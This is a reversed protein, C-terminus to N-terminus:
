ELKKNKRDQLHMQDFDAVSFNRDVKAPMIDPSNVSMAGVMQMFWIDTESRKNKTALYTARNVCYAVFDAIQLLPEDASSAYKGSYQGIWNGFVANGFKSGPTNAGQDVRVTLPEALSEKYADKFKACLMLLSVDARQSLDLGDVVGSMSTVGHDAFTREDITSVVVPWRYMSYIRAFFAFVALNGTPPLGDWCGERNYIEAFHFETAGVAGMERVLELCSRIEARVRDVEDDQFIVGVHTRRADTVYKSGTPAVPGYTDDIILHVFLGGRLYVLAVVEFRSTSPRAHFGTNSTLRLCVEM